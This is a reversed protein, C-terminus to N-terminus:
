SGVCDLNSVLGDCMKKDCPHLTSEVKELNDIKESVYREVINVIRSLFTKINYQQM